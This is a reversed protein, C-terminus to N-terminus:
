FYNLLPLIGWFIKLMHLNDITMLLNHDVFFRFFNIWFKSLIWEFIGKVLAFVM